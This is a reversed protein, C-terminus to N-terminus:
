RSYGHSRMCADYLRQQATWVVGNRLPGGRKVDGTYLVETGQPATTLARETCAAEAAALELDITADKHYTTSCGVSLALIILLKRM